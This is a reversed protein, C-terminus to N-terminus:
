SKVEPAGADGAPDPQPDKPAKPPAKDVGPAWASTQALLGEGLDGGAPPRGAVEAPVDITGGPAAAAQKIRGDDVYKVVRALRSVNRVKM